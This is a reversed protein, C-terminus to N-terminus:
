SPEVTWMVPHPGPDAGGIAQGRENIAGAGSNGESTRAGLDIMTGDQWLFAHQVEGRTYAWGM